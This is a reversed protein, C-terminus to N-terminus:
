DHPPDFCQGRPPAVRVEAIFLSVAAILNIFKGVIVKKSRPHRTIGSDTYAIPM